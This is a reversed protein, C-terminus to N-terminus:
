VTVLVKQNLCAKLLVQMILTTFSSHDAKLSFREEQAGMM